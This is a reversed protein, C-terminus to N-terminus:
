ENAYLHGCAGAVPASRHCCGTCSQRYLSGRVTASIRANAQQLKFYGGPWKYSHIRSTGERKVLLETGRFHMRKIKTPDDVEYVVQQAHEFQNKLYRFLTESETPASVLDPMSRHVTRCRQKPAM